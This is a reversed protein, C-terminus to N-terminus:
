FLCRNFVYGIFDNWIMDDQIKKHVSTVAVVGVFVVDDGAEFVSHILTSFRVDFGMGMVMGVVTEVAVDVDLLVNGSM